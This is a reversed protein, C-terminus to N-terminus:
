RGWLRVIKAADDEHAKAAGHFAGAPDKLAGQAYFDHVFASIEGDAQVRTTAVVNKVGLHVLAAPLGGGGARSAPGTACGNLVVLKPRHDGRLLDFLSVSEGGALRLEVSWPDGPLGTAHGVYHLVSATRYAELLAARNAGAVLRGGLVDHVRAGEKASEPLTGDPDAVVIRPGAQEPEDRLLVDAHPLFSVSFQREAGFPDFSAPHWDPVVYLHEIGELRESWAAFPDSAEVAAVGEDDVLLHLADAGEGVVLLLARERGLTARLSALWGTDRARGKRVPLAAHLEALAQDARRTLASQRARCARRSPGPAHIACGADEALEAAERATQYDVYVPLHEEVDVATVHRELVAARDRDAVILADSPRGVEVLARVLDEQPGRRAFRFLAHDSFSAFRADLAEFCAVAAQYREVAAEMRRRAALVLGRVRIAECREADKPADREVADLVDDAEDYRGDLVFTRARVLGWLGEMSGQSVAAVADLRARADASRGLRLLIAAERTHINALWTKAGKAEFLTAARAYDDMISQLDTPVLGADMAALRVVAANNLWDAEAIESRGKREVLDYAEGSRGVQVLAHALRLTAHEELKTEGLAIASARAERHLRIASVIAGVNQALQARHYTIYAVRVADDVRYALLEARDLLRSARPYQGNRYLVFAASSLLRAAEGEAMRADPHEALRLWVDAHALGKAMWGERSADVEAFFAAMSASPETPVRRLRFRRVRRGDVHVALETTAADLALIRLELDDGAARAEFRVAHENQDFLEVRSAEPTPVLVSLTTDGDYWAFGGSADRAKSRYGRLQVLSADVDAGCRPDASSDPLDAPCAPVSLALVVLPLWASRVTPPPHHRAWRALTWRPMCGWNM